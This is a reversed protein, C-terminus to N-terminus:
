TYISILYTLGYLKLFSLWWWLKRLSFLILTTAVCGVRSFVTHIHVCVCTTFSGGNQGKRGWRSLMISMTFSELYDSTCQFFFFWVAFVCEWGLEVERQLGEEGRQHTCVEINQNWSFPAVSCIKGNFLMEPYWEVYTCVSKVLRWLNVM